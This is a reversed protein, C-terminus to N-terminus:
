QLIYPMLVSTIKVYGKLNPHLGDDTFRKDFSGDKDTLENYLDIYTINGKEAYKKTIKNIRKIDENNVERKWERLEKNIPYISELYIKAKPRNDKIEKLIKIINNSIDDIYNEKDDLIYDNIGVLLFVKTPNYKYLMNELEDLINTTRYGPIGSNIIPMNDFVDEIPYLEIISDGIFVINEKKLEQRIDVINNDAKEKTKEQDEIKDKLLRVKYKNNTNSIIIYISLGFILCLSCLLTIFLIYNNKIKLAVKKM